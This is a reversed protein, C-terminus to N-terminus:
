ARIGVGDCLFVAVVTGFSERFRIFVLQATIGGVENPNRPTHAGVIFVETDVLGPEVHKHGAKVDEASTDGHLVTKL